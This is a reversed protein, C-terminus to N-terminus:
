PSWTQERRWETIPTTKMVDVIARLAVNQVKDLKSENANAATAWSTTAYEM